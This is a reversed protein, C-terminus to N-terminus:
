FLHFSRLFWHVYLHMLHLHIFKIFVMIRNTSQKNISPLVSRYYSNHLNINTIMCNAANHVARTHTEATVQSTWLPAHYCLLYLKGTAWLQNQRATERLPFPPFPFPTILPPFLKYLGNRSVSYKRIFNQRRKAAVDKISLFAEPPLKSDIQSQICIDFRRTTHVHFTFVDESSTAGVVKAVNERKDGHVEVQSRARRGQGLCHWIYWINPDFTIEPWVNNDPCVCRLSQEVQVV